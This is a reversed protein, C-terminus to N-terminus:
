KREVREGVLKGSALDLNVELNGLKRGDTRERIKRVERGDPQLVNGVFATDLQLTQLEVYVREAVHLDKVLVHDVDNEFVEDGRTIRQANLDFAVEVHASVNLRHHPGAILLRSTSSPM